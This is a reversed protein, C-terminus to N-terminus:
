LGLQDLQAPVWEGSEDVLLDVRSQEEDPNYTNQYVLNAGVRHGGVAKRDVLAPGTSRELRFSQGGREFEVFQVKERLHPADELPRELRGHRSLGFKLDIADTLRDWSVENM